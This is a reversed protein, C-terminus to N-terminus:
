PSLNYGKMRTQAQGADASGPTGNGVAPRRAVTVRVTEVSWGVGSHPHLLAVPHVGSPLCHANHHPLLPQWPGGCCGPVRTAM